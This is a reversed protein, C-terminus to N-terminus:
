NHPHRLCCRRKVIQHYKQQTQCISHDPINDDTKNKQYRHFVQCNTLIYRVLYYVTVLYLLLNGLMLLLVKLLFTFCCADLAYCAYFCWFRWLMLGVGLVDFSRLMFMLCFLYLWWCWFFLWCWFWRCMFTFSNARARPHFFVHPRAWVLGGGSDRFILYIKYIPNKFPNKVKLDGGCWPLFSWSWIHPIFLYKQPRAWM